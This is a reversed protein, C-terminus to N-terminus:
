SATAQRESRGATSLTLLSPLTVARTGPRTVSVARAPWAVAELVITTLAFGIRDRAMVGAEGLRAAGAGVGREVRELRREEDAQHLLRPRGAVLHPERVRENGLRERGVQGRDTPPAQVAADGVRDLGDVRGIEVVVEGREGVVVPLGGGDTVGRRGGAERHERGSLRLAAAGHELRGPEPRRGLGRGLEVGGGGGGVPELERELGRQREPAAAILPRPVLHTSAISRASASPSVALM